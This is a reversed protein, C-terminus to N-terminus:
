VDTRAPLVPGYKKRNADIWKIAARYAERPNDTSGRITHVAASRRIGRGNAKPVWRFISVGMQRGAVATPPPRRRDYDWDGVVPNSTLMAM